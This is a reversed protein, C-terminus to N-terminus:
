VFGKLGPFRTLSYIEGTSTLNINPARAEFSVGEKTFSLGGVELTIPGLLPKSLDDSRYIRYKMVPKTEAGRPFKLIRDLELPFEEGLDGLNFTVAYDLDDRATQPAVKVPYYAFFATGGTELTATVGQTANRVIRYIKSFAPHTLEFTDLQVVSSRSNLFYDVYRASRWIYVDEQSVTLDTYGESTLIANVDAAAQAPTKTPDSAAATLSAIIMPHLYSLTIAILAQQSM